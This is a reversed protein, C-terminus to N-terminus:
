HSYKTGVTGPIITTRFFFFLRINTLSACGHDCIYDSM